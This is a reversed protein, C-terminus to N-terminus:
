IKLCSSPVCKLYSFPWKESLQFPWKESLQFFWKGLPSSIKWTVPTGPFNSFCSLGFLVARSDFFLFARSDLFVFRAMKVRACEGSARERADLNTRSQARNHSRVLPRACDPRSRVPVIRVIRVLKITRGLNHVIRGIGITAYACWSQAVARRSTKWREQRFFNTMRTHATCPVPFPGGCSVPVHAPKRM